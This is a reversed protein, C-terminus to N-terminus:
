VVIAALGEAKVTELAALPRYLSVTFGDATQEFNCHPVGYEANEYDSDRQVPAAQFGGEGGARVAALLAAMVVLIIVGTIYAGQWLEYGLAGFGVVAMSCVIIRIRQSPAKGRGALAAAVVVLGLVILWRSLPWSANNEASGNEGTGTNGLVGAPLIGAYALAPASLVFAPIWGITGSSDQASIKYGIWGGAGIAPGEVIMASGGPWIKSYGEEGSDLSAYIATNRIAVQNGPVPSGPILLEAPVYGDLSSSAATIKYDTGSTNECVQEVSVQDGANIFGAPSSSRDLPYSSVAIRQGSPVQVSSADHFNFCASSGVERHGRWFNCGGFGILGIGLVAAAWRTAVSQTKAM